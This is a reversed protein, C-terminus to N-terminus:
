LSRWTRGAILFCLVLFVGWALITYAEGHCGPVALLTALSLSAASIDGLVKVVRIFGNKSNPALALCLCSFLFPAISVEAMFIPNNRFVSACVGFFVAFIFVFVTGLKDQGIELVKQESM